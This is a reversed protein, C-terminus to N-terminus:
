LMARLDQIGSSLSRSSDAISAADPVRGPAGSVVPAYTTRGPSRASANIAVNSAAWRRVKL